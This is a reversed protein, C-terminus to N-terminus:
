KLAGQLIELIPFHEWMLRKTWYSIIHVIIFFNNIRKLSMMKGCFVCCRGVKPNATTVCNPLIVNLHKAGNHLLKNKYIKWFEYSIYKYKTSQFFKIVFYTSKHNQKMLLVISFIHLLDVPCTLIVAIYHVFFKWLRLLFCSKAWTKRFQTSFMLSNM